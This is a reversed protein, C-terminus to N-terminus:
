SSILGRQGRSIVILPSVTITKSAPTPTSTRCWRVSHDSYIHPSAFLLPIRQARASYIYHTLTPALSFPLSSSLSHPLSCTLLCSPTPPCPLSHHRPSSLSLSFLMWTHVILVRFTVYQYRIWVTRSSGAPPFLPFFESNLVLNIQPM